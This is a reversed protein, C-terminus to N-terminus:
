AGKTGSERGELYAALANISGFHDITLDQPPIKSGTREEIYSVLRMMGVSDVIGDLLLNDDLGVEKRGSLLDECIFKQLTDKM